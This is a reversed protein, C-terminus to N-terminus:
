RRTVTVLPTAGGGFTWPMGAVLAAACARAEDRDIGDANDALFRDFTTDFTSGDAWALRIATGPGPRAPSYAVEIAAGTSLDLKAADLAVRLWRMGLWSWRYALPRGHQDATFAIQKTKM